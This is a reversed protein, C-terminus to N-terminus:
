RWLPGFCRGPIGQRRLRLVRECEAIALHARARDLTVSRNLHARLWEANPIYGIAMRLRRLANLLRGM